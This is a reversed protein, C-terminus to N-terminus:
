TFLWLLFKGGELSLMLAVKPGHFMDVVPLGESAHESISPVHLIRGLLNSVDYETLKHRETGPYHLFESKSLALFESGQFMVFFHLDIHTEIENCPYFFVFM